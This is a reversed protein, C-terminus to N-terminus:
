TTRTVKKMSAVTVSQGEKQGSTETYRVKVRAGTQSGLEPITLVKSGIRVKASPALTVTETGAVTRLTLTLGDVKVLTGIIARRAAPPAAGASAIALVVAV